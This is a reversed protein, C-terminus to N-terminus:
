LPVCPYQNCCLLRVPPIQLHIRYKNQIESALVALEYGSPDALLVYISHDLREPLHANILDDGPSVAPYDHGAPGVADVIGLGRM